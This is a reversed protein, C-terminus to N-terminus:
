EPDWFNPLGRDVLFCVWRDSCSLLPDFLPVCYLWKEIAHSGWKITTVVSEGKGLRQALNRITRTSTHEFHGEIYERSRYLEPSVHSIRYCGSQEEWPSLVFYTTYFSTIEEEFARLISWDNDFTATNSSSNRVHAKSRREREERFQPWRDFDELPNGGETVNMKNKARHDGELELLEEDLMGMNYSWTVDVFSALEYCLRGTEASLLESILISHCSGKGNAESDVLTEFRGERGKGCDLFLDHGTAPNQAPLLDSSVFRVRGQVDIVCFTRFLRQDHLTDAAVVDDRPKIMLSSPNSETAYMDSLGSPDGHSGELSMAAYTGSGKLKGRAKVRRLTHASAASTARPTKGFGTTSLLIDAHEVGVAMAARRCEPLVVLKPSSHRDSVYQIPRGNPIPEPLSIEDAPWPTQVSYQSSTFTPLSSFSSISSLQPASDLFAFRLISSAALDASTPYHRLRAFLKRFFERLLASWDQWSRTTM